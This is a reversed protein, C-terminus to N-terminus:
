AQHVRVGTERLVDALAVEIEGAADGDLPNLHRYLAPVLGVGFRRVWRSDKYGSKHQEYRVDPTRGSKGVYLGTEGSGFDLVIVYM